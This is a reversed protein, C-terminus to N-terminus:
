RTVVVIIAVLSALIQAVSATIATYDKRDNPDKEPVFVSSGPGPEPHRNAIGLLSRISEVKGNSQTVYAREEDALRSPGGAARIYYDLERGPVYPVAVPSNVAGRVNVVGSYRPVYISDGELLTLNDRHKSKELVAPLDIGIRGIRNERRYFVIGGAYAEATLGGARRLVDGLRETKTMLAYTGPFTVEGSVVVRRQLEWDPQRM